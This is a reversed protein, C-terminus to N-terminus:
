LDEPLVPTTIFVDAQRPRAIPVRQEDFLGRVFDQPQRPEYCQKCVFLNNWEKLGDRSLYPTGCRDCIFLYEGPKYSRNSM